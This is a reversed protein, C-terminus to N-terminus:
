AAMSSGTRPRRMDATLRM